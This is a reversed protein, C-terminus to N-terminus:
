SIGGWLPLGCTADFVRDPPEGNLEHISVECVFVETGTNVHGGFARGAADALTVHAHIFPEGDLLSVNGVGGTVELHENLTFDRYRLTAQDYYRLSARRVAGLFTLSAARIDQHRVYATLEELLDSGADLRLM